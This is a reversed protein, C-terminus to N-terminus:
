TAGGTVGGTTTVIVARVAILQQLVIIRVIAVIMAMGIASRPSAISTALVTTTRLGEMIIKAFVRAVLKLAVAAIVAMGTASMTSVVLTACMTARVGIRHAVGM